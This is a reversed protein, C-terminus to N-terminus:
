KTCCCGLLMGKQHEHDIIPSNGNFIATGMRDDNESEFRNSMMKSIRVPTALLGMNNRHIITKKAIPSKPIEEDENKHQHRHDFYYDEQDESKIVVPSRRNQSM